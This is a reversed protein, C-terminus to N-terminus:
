STGHTEARDSSERSSEVKFIDFTAGAGADETVHKLFKELMSAIAEPEVETADELEVELLVSRKGADKGNLKRHICTAIIRSEGALNRLYPVLMPKLVDAALEPSDGFRVAIGIRITEM